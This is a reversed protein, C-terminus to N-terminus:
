DPQRGAGTYDEGDESKVETKGHEAVKEQWEGDPLTKIHKILDRYEDDTFIKCKMKLSNSDALCLLYTPKSDEKGWCIIDNFGSSDNGVIVNWKHEVRKDLPTMAMDVCALLLKRRKKNSLYEFGSNCTDIRGNNGISAVRESENGTILYYVEILSSKEAYLHGDINKIRKEFESVLM